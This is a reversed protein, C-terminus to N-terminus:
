KHGLVKGWNVIVRAQFQWEASTNLDLQQMALEVQGNKFPIVLGQETSVTQQGSAVEHNVGAFIAWGREDLTRWYDFCGVYDTRPNGPSVGVGATLTLNVVALNKGWSYQPAATAGARGGDGGRIFVTGRPALTLEFGGKSYAQQRIVFDFRNGFHTVRRNNVTESDMANVLVNFDTTSNFPAFSLVVPLYQGDQDLFGLETEVCKACVPPPSFVFTTGFDSVSANLPQPQAQPQAPSPSPQQAPYVRLSLAAFFLPLLVPAALVKRMEFCTIAVTMRNELSRTLFSTKEPQRDLAGV